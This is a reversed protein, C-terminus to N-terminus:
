TSLRLLYWRLIKAMSILLLNNVIHATLPSIIGNDCYIHGFYYGSFAASLAQIPQPNPNLLHALGFAISSIALAYSQSKDEIIENEYKLKELLYSVHAEIATFGIFRFVVEEKVSATVILRYGPIWLRRVLELLEEESMSFLILLNPMNRDYPNGVYKRFILIFPTTTLGVVAPIYLGYCLGIEFDNKIKGLFAYINDLLLTKTSENEIPCIDLYKNISQETVNIMSSADLNRYQEESSLQDKENACLMCGFTNLCLICALSYIFSLKM